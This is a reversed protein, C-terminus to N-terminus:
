SRGEGAPAAPRGDPAPAAHGTSGHGGSGRESAPLEDVPVFRARVVPQVVLQAIRDGRKLAIPTTPDLNVLNVKIEGRYGADITGPANVLSLGFRHALGSRPHVFGAYGEPIAVAVGTGVLARQLPALVVDEALTLDAGADGPLAYRPAAGAPSTLRVPVDLELDDPM